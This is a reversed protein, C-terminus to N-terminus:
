DRLPLVTSSFRLSDIKATCPDPLADGTIDNIEHFVLDRATVTVTPPTADLDLSEITITGTQVSMLVEGPVRLHACPMRNNEDEYCQNWNMPTIVNEGLSFDGLPEFSDNLGQPFFIQMLSDAPDSDTILGRALVSVGGVFHEGLLKDDELVIDGLNMGENLCEGRVFTPAPADGPDDPSDDTQEAGADAGKHNEHSSSAADDCAPAVALALLSIFLVPKM